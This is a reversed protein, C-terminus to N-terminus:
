KSATNKIPKRPKKTIKKKSLLDRSDILKYQAQDFELKGGSMEKMNAFIVSDSVNEERNWTVFLRKMHNGILHILYDRKEGEELEVAKQILLEITRGFHKFRIRHQNYPISKPAETLIELTPKEYPWDVDLDFNSLLALHDWLKRKYHQPDKYGTNSNTMISVIKHAFKTREERNEITKAHDVLKQINRGYEPLKLGERETNYKYLM